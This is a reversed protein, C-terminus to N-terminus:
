FLLTLGIDFTIISCRHYSLIERPIPDYYYNYVKDDAKSFNLMYRLGANLALTNSLPRRIRLAYSLSLGAYKRKYDIYSIGLSESTGSGGYELAFIYDKEVVNTMRYGVGFEHSIGIPLLSSKNSFCLTPMILLTRLRINEHARLYIATGGMDPTQIVTPGPINGFMESVNLCIAKDHEFAMGVTGSFGYNFRDKSLHLTNSGEKKYYDNVFINNVLPTTGRASIDFFFKKGYFGNNKQATVVGTFLLMITILKLKIM